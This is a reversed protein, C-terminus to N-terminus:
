VISFRDPSVRFVLNFLDSTMIVLNFDNFVNSASEGHDSSSSQKMKCTVVTTM